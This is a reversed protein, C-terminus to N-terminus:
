RRSIRLLKAVLPEQVTCSRRTACHNYGERSSAPKCSDAHFQHSSHPLPQSLPLTATPCLAPVHWYKAGEPGREWHTLKSQWRRGPVTATALCWPRYGGTAAALGLVQCAAAINQYYCSITDNSGQAQRMDRVWVEGKVWIGVPRQNGRGAWVKSVEPFLSIFDGVSFLLHCSFGLPSKM